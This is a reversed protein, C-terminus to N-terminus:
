SPPLRRRFFVSRKRFFFLLSWALRAHWSPAELPLFADAVFASIRPLFPSQNMTHAKDGARPPPPPPTPPPPPPPPPPHNSGSLPLLIRPNPIMKRKSGVPVDRTSLVSARRICWSPPPYFFCNADIECLLSSLSSVRRCPPRSTTKHPTALLTVHHPEM